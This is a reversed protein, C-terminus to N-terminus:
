NQLVNWWKYVTKKSLGTDRICDCKRADPHLWRYERVIREATPRGDKNRWEGDPYDIKQVARMRELHIRQKRGNRKAEPLSIGTRDVVKQRPYHAYGDQYVELADLVDASTFADKESEALGDLFQLLNFCDQEVEEYTVPNPNKKEDYTGCKVACAVLAKLCNYRHGVRAGTYIRDKWRDYLARNVAWKTFPQQEVIKRQYWDPYKERAESLTLASRYTVETVRYPEAVFENLYDMSVSDGTWFARAREGTGELKGAKTLTGPVRFGQYIGEQQIEDDSSINVIGENWLLTTLERKFRQLQEATNPFLSIPTKLVYYLHLGTGSAVIVTPKPIRGVRTIHGVWLNILGVPEGDRERIHDLDVCIAYVARANKATRAKGAYSVPSMLCFYDTQVIDAIAQLDDTVTRRLVRPVDYGRSNKRYEDTVAVLIGTYKGKNKEGAKDLEGEPFLIRYFELPTLEDFYTELWAAGVIAM